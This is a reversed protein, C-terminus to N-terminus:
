FHFYVFEDTGGSALLGLTAACGMVVAWRPTSRWAFQSVVGGQMLQRTSPALWVIAYLAAIWVMDAAVNVNSLATMVGLGHLGAMGALLSGADSVSNARFVVAGVLVSMYTVAISALAPLAPARWLRWAHNVLLLGAHFVGFLLFPLTPGHWIGILIMTVVIPAAIMSLFGGPSQQAAQNISLARARRRRLVALTLPAHLNTMLFRTLSMHWRQWYATVSQARYPQEFNDPFRFGFLWALGIAMDTYGSFDFYLQLSWAAAAQWATLLSMAGPDAFGATVLGSLSDGLVTKKLLGIFFFGAGVMLNDASLRWGTTREFQPLMERANLIPGATLAPFFLVFLAYDLIKPPLVDAGAYALLCGIQTFTFFSMGLPLVADPWFSPEAYKFWGLLALNLAVGLAALHSRGTTRPMAQLLALNGCVSVLLLPLFRPAWTGYFLLSVAILWSKAWVPGLRCIVTYSALVCPLFGLLFVLSNFPV